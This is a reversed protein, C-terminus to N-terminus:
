LLVIGVMVLVGLLGVPILKKGHLKVMKFNLVFLFATIAMIATMTYVFAEGELFYASLYATSFIIAINTVPLGQYSTRKKEGEKNQREEETVNFYALRIVACLAFIIGVILAITKAVESGPANYVAIYYLIM